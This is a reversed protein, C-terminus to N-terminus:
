FVSFNFILKAFLSKYHNNYNMLGGQMGVRFDVEYRLINVDFFLSAGAGLLDNTSSKDKIAAWDGYLGASCRKVNLLSGLHVDPYAFPFLYDASFYAIETNLNSSYGRPLLNLANSNNLDKQQWAANIKLIHHPFFGPFNFSATAAMKYRKEYFDNDNFYLVLSQRLPSYLDREARQKERIFVTQIGKTFYYDNYNNYQPVRRSIYEGFFHYSFYLAYVGRKYSLPLYISPRLSFVTADFAQYSTSYGMATPLLAPMLATFDGWSLDLSLKPYFGNYNYAIKFKEASRAPNGDYSASLFSTSLKNQSLLSFAPHLGENTDFSSADLDDDLAIFPCWSHIHFLHTLRAYNKVEYTKKPTLSFDIIGGEQETLKDGLGLSTNCVKDLPEGAKPSSLHQVPRYGDSTYNTFYLSEGCLTAYDAGFRASSIRRVDKTAANCVYINNIGSHSATFYISDGKWLPNQLSEYTGEVLVIEQKKELDYYRLSKKDKKQGVYLIKSEDNSWRPSFYFQNDPNPIQELVSGDKASLIELTYLGNGDIQQAVIKDAHSNFSPAQMVKRRTLRKQKGSLIDVVFIDAFSRQEWRKDPLLDTFLLKGSQVDFHYESAWGRQFISREHGATDIEVISPIQSLSHKAAYLKGGDEQLFTYSNYDESDPLINEFPTKELLSDQQQWKKELLDIAFGYYQIKRNDRLGRWTSWRGIESMKHDFLASDRYLRNVAVTHYGVEYHNPVDYRYSGLHAVEYSQKGKELTLARLGKEFDPMRGRGAHSLATETVVADGEMFWQRTMLGLPIMEAQEGLIIKLVKTFGQNMKNEQVFHRTEHIILQEMWEQAYNVAGQSPTTWLEMRRPAWAVMGNSNATQTHIIVSLRRPNSQMSKVVFDYAYDMKAAFAQAQEEYEKPFIIQFYDTKIQQWNTSFPETGNDYYQTFGHWLFCLFLTLVFSRKM